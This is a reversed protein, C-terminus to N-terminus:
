YRRLSITTQVRTKASYEVREARKLVDMELSVIAPVFTGDVTGVASFVTLLCNEVEVGEMLTDNTISVYLNDDPGIEPNVLSDSIIAIGIRSNKIGTEGDLCKIYTSEETNGVLKVTEYGTGINTADVSGRIQRELSEVIIQSNQKVENIANAKQTGRLVSTLFIAIAGVAMTLVGLVVLLEVMTFAFKKSYLKM